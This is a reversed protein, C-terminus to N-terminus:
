MMFKKLVKLKNTRGMREVDIVGRNVLSKVVRSVKAKSLNTEQVVKRQNITGGAAVIMDFIKREYEDLVSLIVKEPKRFYRLYIFASVLGIAAGAIIAYRIRVDFLPQLIINEYLVQMKLDEGIPLDNLQWTVIVRRGDSLISASEPFSIRNPVTQDVIGTGEPLRVSIAARDIREELSFDSDFLFRGKLDKILDYTEFSLVLTRQDRTLNLRCNVVTIGSVQLICKQPGATSNANFNQMSGDLTFNFNSVPQSFTVTMQVSSKLKEDLQVDVGYFQVQALSASVFFMTFFLTFSIAFSSFTLIQLPKMAGAVTEPHTEVANSQKVSPLFQKV